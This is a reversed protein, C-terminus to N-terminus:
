LAIDNKRLKQEPLFGVHMEESSWPPAPQRRQCRLIDRKLYCSQQFPMVCLRKQQAVVPLLLGETLTDSCFNLVLAGIGLSVVVFAQNQKQLKPVLLTEIRSAFAQVIQCVLMPVAWATELCCVVSEKRNGQVFYPM